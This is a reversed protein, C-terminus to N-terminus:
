GRQTGSAMPWMASDIHAWDGCLFALDSSIIVKSLPWTLSIITLILITLIIALIAAVPSPGQSQHSYSIPMVRTIM